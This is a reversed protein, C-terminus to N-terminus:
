WGTKVPVEVAADAAQQTEVTMVEQQVVALTSATATRSDEERQASGKTRKSSKTGRKSQKPRKTM